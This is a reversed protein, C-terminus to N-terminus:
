RAVRWVAMTYAVALGARELNVHSRSSWAALSCVRRYGAAGADAMRRAILATQCGRGRFAPLTSANALYALHRCFLVAAAAPEGDVLALYLRTGPVDAIRRNREVAAPLDQEPVGHGRLIVGSFRDLETRDVSRVEIGGGPRAPPPGADGELAALFDVQAAGAATLASALHRFGPTPRLEFWPRIGLARYHAVVAGVQGADAPGLCHVTNLFDIEPMAPCAAAWASGFRSVTVDPMLELWGLMFHAGIAQLASAREDPTM